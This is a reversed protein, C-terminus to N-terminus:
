TIKRDLLRQAQRKITEAIDQLETTRPYPNHTANVEGVKEPCPPPVTGTEPIIVGGEYPRPPSPFKADQLDADVVSRWGPAVVSLIAPDGPPDGEEPNRWVTLYGDENIEWGNANPFSLTQQPGDNFYVRIM